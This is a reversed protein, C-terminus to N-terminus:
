LPPNYTRRVPTMSCWITSLHFPDVKGGWIRGHQITKTVLCAIDWLSVTRWSLTTIFDIRLWYSTVTLRCSMYQSHSIFRQLRRLSLPQKQMHGHKTAWHVTAWWAGRDKPNDLWSYQLPNGNGGGPSRGLGPISDTDGSDGANCTPKKKVETAKRWTYTPRELSVIIQFPKQKKKEM